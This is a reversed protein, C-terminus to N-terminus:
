TAGQSHGIYSLKNAGTNQLIYEINAPVDYKGMEHFSFEWYKKNHINLEEHEFSYVTGRNNGLWIDYGQRALQDVLQNEPTNFFWTGAYDFLGHQFLVSKQFGRNDVVPEADKDWVHWLSNIYGDKTTVNFSEFMLGQNKIQTPVDYFAADPIPDKSHTMDELLAVFLSHLYKSDVTPTTKTEFLHHKQIFSEVVDAALDAIISDSQALCNSM